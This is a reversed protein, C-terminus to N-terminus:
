QSISSLSPIPRPSNRHQVCVHSWVCDAHSAHLYVCHAECTCACQVSPVMNENHSSSQHCQIARTQCGPWPTPHHVRAMHNNSMIINGIEIKNSWSCQQLEKCPSKPMSRHNVVAPEIHRKLRCYYSKSRCTLLAECAMSKVSFCRLM